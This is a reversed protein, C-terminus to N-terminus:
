TKLPNKLVFANKTIEEPDTPVDVLILPKTFGSVGLQKPKTGVLTGFVYAIVGEAPVLDHGVALFQTASQKDVLSNGTDSFKVYKKTSDEQLYLTRTVNNRLVNITSIPLLPSTVLEQKNKNFGM